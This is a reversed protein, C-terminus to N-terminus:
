QLAQLALQLHLQTDTLAPPLQFIIELLVVHPVHPRVHLLDCSELHTWSHSVQVSGIFHVHGQWM